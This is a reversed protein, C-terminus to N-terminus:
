QVWFYLLCDGGVAPILDKDTLSVHFHEFPKRTTALLLPQEYHERTVIGTCPIPYGNLYDSRTIDPSDVDPADVILNYFPSNAIGATVPFNNLLYGRLYIKTHQHQRQLKITTRSSSLDLKVFFAHGTSDM